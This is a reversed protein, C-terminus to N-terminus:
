ASCRSTGAGSLPASISCWRYAGPTTPRPLELRSEPGITWTHEPEPEAWGSRRYVGSNGGARFDVILADAAQELEFRPEAELRMARYETGRQGPREGPM